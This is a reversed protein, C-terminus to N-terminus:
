PLCTLLVHSAFCFPCKCSRDDEEENEEDDKPCSLLEQSAAGKGLEDAKVSVGDHERPLFVPKLLLEEEEEASDSEESEEDCVTKFIRCKSKCPSNVPSFTKPKLSVCRQTETGKNQPKYNVLAPLLHGAPRNESVGGDEDDLCVLEDRQSAPSSTFEVTQNGTTFMSESCQESDTASSTKSSSCLHGSPVAITVKDDSNRSGPPYDCASTESGVKTEPAATMEVSGDPSKKKNMTSRSRKHTARGAEPSLDRQTKSGSNPSLQTRRSHRSVSEVHRNLNCLTHAGLRKAEDVKGRLSEDRLLVCETTQDDEKGSRLNKLRSLSSLSPSQFKPSVQSTNCRLVPPTPPIIDSDPTGEGICVDVLAEASPITHRGKSQILRSSKFGESRKLRKPSPKVMKGECTSKGSCSTSAEQDTRGHLEFEEFHHNSVELGQLLSISQTTGDSVMESSEPFEETEPLTSPECFERAEDVLSIREKRKLGVRGQSEDTDCPLLSPAELAACSETKGPCIEVTSGCSDESGFLCPTVPTISHTKQLPTSESSGLKQSEASHPSDPEETDYNTSTWSDLACNMNAVADVRSPSRTFDKGEATVFSQSEMTEEAKSVVPKHLKLSRRERGTSGEDPESMYDKHQDHGTGRSQWASTHPVMPDIVCVDTTEPSSVSAPVLENLSAPSVISTQTNSLSSRNSSMKHGAPKTPTDSGSITSDEKSTCDSTPEINTTDVNKGMDTCTVPLSTQNSNKLKKPLSIRCNTNNQSLDFSSELSRKKGKVKVTKSSQKRCHVQSADLVRRRQRRKIREYMDPSEPHMADEQPGDMPRDKSNRIRSEEHPSVSAMEKTTCKSDEQDQCCNKNTARKYGDGLIESSGGNRSSGNSLVLPTQNEEDLSPSRVKYDSLDQQSRLEASTCTDELVVNYGNNSHTEGKYHKKDKEKVDSSVSIDLREDAVRQVDKRDNSREVEELFCVDCDEKDTQGECTLAQLISEGQAMAVQEKEQRVDSFVSTDLREDASHQSVKDNDNKGSERESAFCQLLSESQSTDVQEKEQRRTDSFVTVDATHQVAKDDNKCSERESALFQLLSESQSTDVQEKEQRRTDSFVTVDATHQVATDDNKGSERESAFCQLISVSQSTDQTNDTSTDGRTSSVAVGTNRKLRTDDVCTARKGLLGSRDPSKVSSDAEAVM